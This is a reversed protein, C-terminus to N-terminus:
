IEVLFDPNIHAIAVSCVRDLSIVVRRDKKVRYITGEVGEFPGLVVKVRRGIKQSFDKDGLFMVSDDEVAAVRRFNAM